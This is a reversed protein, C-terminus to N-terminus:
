RPLLKECANHAAQFTPSQPNVGDGPGGLRIFFGAGSGGFKPDPFNPLGHARMCRSFELAQTEMKPQQAATPAGQAYKQCVESARQFAPSSPDPAGGPGAQAEFQGQASPSPPDPFSPVGNARMCKSYALPSPAGFASPGTTPTTGLHAVGSASPSGSGCAALALALVSAGSAMLVRCCTFLGVPRPCPRASVTVNRLLCDTVAGLALKAAPLLRRPGDIVRHVSPDPAALRAPM